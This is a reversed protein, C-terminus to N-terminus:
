HWLWKLVPTLHKSPRAGHRQTTQMVLARFSHPVSSLSEITTESLQHCDIAHKVANSLRRNMHYTKGTRPFDFGVSMLAARKAVECFREPRSYLSDLLVINALKGGMGVVSALDHSSYVLICVLRLEIEKPHGKLCFRVEHALSRARTKLDISTNACPAAALYFDCREEIGM